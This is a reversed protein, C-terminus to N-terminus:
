PTGGPPAPPRRGPAGLAVAPERPADRSPELVPNASPGGDDRLRARHRAAKAQNGCTSMDCWRRRATRSADFFMWRCNGNACFRLRDRRDSGIERVLPEVLTALADALPDGVHRHGITVGDAAPVLELVARARLARNIEVVARPDAARHDVAAEGVERLAGRVRRLRDLSGSRALAARADPEHVLGRTALWTAADDVTPLHERSAVRSFELTNIFDLSTDLSADHVHGSAPHVKM